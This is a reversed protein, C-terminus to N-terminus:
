LQEGSYQTTTAMMGEAVEKTPVCLARVLAVVHAEKVEKMWFSHLTDILIHPIPIYPLQHAPDSVM